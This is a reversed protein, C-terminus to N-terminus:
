ELNSVPRARYLASDTLWFWMKEASIGKPEWGLGPPLLALSAEPNRVGSVNVSTRNNKAFSTVSHGPGEGVVKLLAFLAQGLGLRLDPGRM